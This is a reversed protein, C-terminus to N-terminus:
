GSSICVLRLLRIYGEGWGDTQSEAGRESRSQMWSSHDHVFGFRMHRQMDRCVDIYDICTCALTFVSGCRERERKPRERGEQMENACFRERERESNRKSM